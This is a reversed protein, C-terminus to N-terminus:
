NSCTPGDEPDLPAVLVNAGQSLMQSIRNEPTLEDTIVLDFDSLHFQAHLARRDFKTHDVLLVRCASSAFMARKIDVTEMQPQFCQDDIVASTSMFLVDARLREIQEVTQGGSFASSWYSYTGGLAVLEIERIGRLENLLPLTNTIVTLPTIESLLPGLARVTTSDDLFIAQGPEIQRLALRAIAVKEGVQRTSRYLDGAEVVSTSAASAVGRNKRIVGLGALEDLDRHVTMVSIAFRDALDEIRVTGEAIVLDRIAQRREEKSLKGGVRGDSGEAVM